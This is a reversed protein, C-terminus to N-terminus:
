IDLEPIKQLLVQRLVAISPLTDPCWCSKTMQEITIGGPVLVQVDREAVGLSSYYDFFKFGEGHVDDSIRVWAAKRGYAHAFVVGHLSSSILNGCSTLQGVYTEPSAQVDVIPIEQKRCIRVFESERDVYHPVLGVAHVPQSPAIFEPLLLGADGLADSCKIGRAVLRDRTLRGRVALVEAPPSFDVDRGILGCGWLISHKDSWHVISGIGILNPFELPAEGVIRIRRGSIAGVIQSGVRDGVNTTESFQKLYIM